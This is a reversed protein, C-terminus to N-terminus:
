IPIELLVLHPIAKAFITVYQAYYTHLDFNQASYWLMRVYNFMIPKERTGSVRM